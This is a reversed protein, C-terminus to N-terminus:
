RRTANLYDILTEMNRIFAGTSIYEQESEDRYPSTDTEDAVNTSAYKDTPDGPGGDKTYPHSVSVHKQLWRSQADLGALVRRVQEDTPPPRRSNDRGSAMLTQGKIDYSQQPTDKGTYPGSLLPSGATAEEVTMGAVTDYEQRLAAVDIRDKGGYHVLLKADDYDVYYAGNHVNTGRRHVFLPKNTGIEVFTPHTYKGGETMREPLRCSELWDLAPPIADLFKRDGTLRYFRLLIRVHAETYGPLLATPEYTRAGSPTLDLTYQQGWGAQPRGQQTVLYVSMGRRIPDLLRQEGLTVYCQILFNVNEWVVDDNFTIFSTYDPKGHHSFDYKLPYRQPWGGIPYQSELVFGIARDLAPKYVPNLEVLYMRLLFKAADSSVDDDFTANGYYHQFEELRWGNKGVTEYWRKLSRDGAFDVIYNWGGAPLQGWILARAARDAADLYARDGTAQYADLYVHGMSTTGPPQVWIMTKYAEMEGWRRSLDPTYFWVYGGNTSVTEVMYKTARKMAALVQDRLAPAAQAESRQVASVLALVAAALIAGYRRRSPSM